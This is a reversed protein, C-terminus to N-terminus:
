RRSYIEFWPAWEHRVRAVAGLARKLIIEERRAWPRTWEDALPMLVDGYVRQVQFGTESLLRALAALHTVGYVKHSSAFLSAARLQLGEILYTGLHEDLRARWVARM